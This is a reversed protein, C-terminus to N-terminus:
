SSEARKRYFKAEFNGFKKKDPLFNLRHHKIQMGNLNTQQKEALKTPM